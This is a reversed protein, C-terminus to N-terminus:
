FSGDIQAAPRPEDIAEACDAAADIETVKTVSPSHYPPVDTREPLASAALSVLPVMALALIAVSNPLGARVFFLMM